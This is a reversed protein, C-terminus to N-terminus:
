SFPTVRHPKQKYLSPNRIFIEYWLRLYDRVVRYLTAPRITVSKKGNDKNLYGDVELFSSGSRILRINIEALIGYGDTSLKMARVKQVPFCPSGQLYKIHIGFTLCYVLNYLTSIGHRFYSREETNVFYGIVVDAKDKSELVRKISYPATGDDGPFLCIKEGKAVAIADILCRGMGKNVPHAISRIEPFERELRAVEQATGDTSGDNVIIIELPCDGASKAASRISNIALRVRKEENLVPVVVSVLPTKDSM